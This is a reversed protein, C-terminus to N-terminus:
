IKWNIKNLLKTSSFYEHHLTNALENVFDSLDETEYHLITDVVSDVTDAKRWMSGYMEVYSLRDPVIPIAGACVSEYMSIGLTEQEAFSISFKARGLLSHYQQKTLGLEMPIIFEYHQLEPRMALENFLDVRKEPAIRHPFVIINEKVSQHAALLSKTYHMPWGTLNLKVDPFIHNIQHIHSSTAVWNYDYSAFFTAEANRIWKDDGILRGLFDNPDYSGAHWLGHIEIQKNLLTAMYKLNIVGPHWADTFLFKDGNNIKDELFLRSIAHVQTSKYMNTGAFNLFAGPTTMNPIHSDGEIIM